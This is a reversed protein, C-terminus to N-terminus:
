ALDVRIDGRAAMPFHQEPRPDAALVEILAHRVRDVRARPHGETTAGSVRDLIAMLVVVTALDLELHVVPPREVVRAVAVQEV